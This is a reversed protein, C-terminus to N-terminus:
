DEWEVATMRNDACAFIKGKFNEMLNYDHTAMLVPTGLERNINFLLTMIEKATIPDLNGTPEDAIIIKPNNLLARAIVVRQQEGGSLQFPKKDHKDKLNVLDLMEDITSKMLAKDKWGTAHLVFLLNEEVTRDTLLQFDQFIIGIKRRLYPVEKAKITKLDFGAIEAKDASSLELDGYLTKLFSSKGSGTRGVIYIFDRRRVEVNVDKIVLTNGQYVQMNRIDVVLNESSM